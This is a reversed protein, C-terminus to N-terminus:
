LNSNLIDDLPVTDMGDETKTKRPYIKYAEERNHAQSRELLKPDLQDRL